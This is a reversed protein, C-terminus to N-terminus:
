NGLPSSGESVQQTTTNVEHGEVRQSTAHNAIMSYFDDQNKQTQKRTDSAHSKSSSKVGYHANKMIDNVETSLAKERLKMLDIQKKTFTAISTILAMRQNQIKGARKIQAKISKSSSAELVIINYLKNYASSGKTLKKMQKKQQNYIKMALQYAKKSEAKVTILIKNADLVQPSTKSYMTMLKALIAEKNFVTLQLGKYKGLYKNYKKFSDTTSDQTVQNVTGTEGIANSTPANSDAFLSAPLLLGLTTLGTFLMTRHSKM